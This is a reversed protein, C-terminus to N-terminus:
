HLQLVNQLIFAAPLDGISDQEQVVISRSVPCKCGQLFQGIQAEMTKIVWGKRRIQGRRVVVQEISQFVISVDGSKMRRSPWQQRPSRTPRVVKLNKKKKIPKRFNSCRALFHISRPSSYTSYIWLKTVTVQKRKRGPRALSKDAGGRKNRQRQREFCLERVLPPWRSENFNKKHRWRVLFLHTIQLMLLFNILIQYGRIRLHPPGRM